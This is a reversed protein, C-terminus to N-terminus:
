RAIPLRGQMENFARRALEERRFEEAGAISSWEKRRGFSGSRSLRLKPVFSAIKLQMAGIFQLKDLLSTVISM